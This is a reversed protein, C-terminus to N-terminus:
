YDLSQGQTKNTAGNVLDVMSKITLRTGPIGVFMVLGGAPENYSWLQECALYSDDEPDSWWM